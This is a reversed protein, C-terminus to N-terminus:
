NNKIFQTYNKSFLKFSDKLKLTKITKHKIQNEERIKMDM